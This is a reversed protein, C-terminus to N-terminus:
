KSARRRLRDLPRKDGRMIDVMDAVLDGPRGYLPFDGKPTSVNGSLVLGNRDFRFRMVPDGPRRTLEGGHTTQRLEYGTEDAVKQLHAFASM